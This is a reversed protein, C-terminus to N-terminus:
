FNTGADKNEPSTFKAQTLKGDKLHTNLQIFVTERTRGNLGGTVKYLNFQTLSVAVNFIGNANHLAYESDGPVGPGQPSDDSSHTHFAGFGKARHPSTIDTTSNDTNATKEIPSIVKLENYSGKNIVNYGLDAEWEKAFGDTNKIIKGDQDKKLEKYKDLFKVFSTVDFALMGMEALGAVNAERAEISSYKANRKQQYQENFNKTAKDSIIVLLNVDKYRQNDNSYGLYRGSESYFLTSDGNHDIANIPMSGAYVYPSQHFFKM